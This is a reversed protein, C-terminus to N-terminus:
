ICSSDVCFFWLSKGYNSCPDYDLLANEFYEAGLRWDLELDRVLFSAVVQRGRNSMYGTRKLENMNADIFPYGTKGEIWAHLKTLDRKWPHKYHGEKGLVGGLYFLKKDYKVSYFRMYDRWLLEFLVWCTSDNAIGTATEFQAIRHMIERSTICGLALYPSLKTSYDRGYMGNRTEKYVSVRNIGNDIYHELRKQAAHIGGRWPFASIDLAPSATHDDVSELRLKLFDELDDISAKWELHNNIVCISNWLTIVQQYFQQPQRDMPLLDVLQGRQLVAEEAHFPRWEAPSQYMEISSEKIVPEVLNRFSTFMDLEAVPFPLQEPTLLTGGGWSVRLEALGEVQRRVEELEVREEHIFDDHCYIHQIGFQQVLSAITPAAQGLIVHCRAGKAQLNHQVASVSECFFAFRQLGIKPKGISTNCFYRPDITHVHLVQDHQLHAHLLPLHDHCRLDSGRYWVMAKTGGTSMMRTAYIRINCYLLSTVIFPISRKTYYMRKHNITIDDWSKKKNSFRGESKVETSYRKKRCVDWWGVVFLCRRSNPILEERSRKDSKNIM